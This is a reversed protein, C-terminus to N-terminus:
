DFIFFRPLIALRNGTPPLGGECIFSVVQGSKCNDTTRQFNNTKLQLNHILGHFPPRTTSPVARSFRCARFPRTPEFGVREANLSVFLPLLFRVIESGTPHSPIEFSIGPEFLFGVREANLSVFLPLLFRVIESGTPHSPIKGQRFIGSGLYLHGDTFGPFVNWSNEQKEQNGSFFFRELIRVTRRRCGYLGYSVRM